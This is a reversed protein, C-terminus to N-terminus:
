FPIDETGADHYGDHHQGNRPAPAAPRPPQPTPAPKPAAPPPTTPKAAKLLDAFRANLSRVGAQAIPRQATGARRRYITWKEAKGGEWDELRMEGDRVQGALADLDGFSTGNFGLDLLTQWVWGPNSPTGLTGATLSLYITREPGTTTIFQNEAPDLYALVEVGLEIQPTGNKSEGLAAGIVRLRYRGPTYFNSM